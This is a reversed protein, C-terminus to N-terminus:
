HRNAPVRVAGVWRPGWYYRDWISRVRVGRSSTASIFRGRGIFIGVHGVRRGGTRHFVLDGVKLNTRKWIRRFGRRRALRFQDISTRPLRAGHGWFVWRTFV